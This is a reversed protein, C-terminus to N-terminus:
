HAQSKAAVFDAVCQPVFTTINGGHKAIDRVLSSSVYSHEQCTPIFLTMVQPNLKRNALAMPMEYSFDTETRLGRILALAGKSQAFDVVLGDFYTVEVRPNDAFVTQILNFRETTTLLPAGKHASVGIAVIVRDFLRLAEEVIERHGNTFPDFSGPFLAKRIKANESV